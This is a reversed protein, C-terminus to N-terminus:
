GFAMIVTHIRRRGVHDPRAVKRRVGVVLDVVVLHGPLEAEGTCQHRADLHEGVRGLRERCGPALLEQRAAHHVHAEAPRDVVTIVDGDLGFLVGFM